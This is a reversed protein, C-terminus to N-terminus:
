FIYMRINKALTSLDTQSNQDAHNESLNYYETKLNNSTHLYPHKKYTVSM